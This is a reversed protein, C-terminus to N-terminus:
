FSRWRQRGTAMFDARPKRKGSGSSDALEKGAEEKEGQRTHALWIDLRPYDQDFESLECFRRFDALAEKWQGHMYEFQGRSEYGWAFQPNIQIAREIDARGGEEDGSVKKVWSRTAYAFEDPKLKMAEDVDKMAGERDGLTVKIQSRACYAFALKPYLAISRDFDALAGPLDREVGRARGRDLYPRHDKPDLAIAQDFDAIAEVTHGVALKLLGRNVYARSFKPDLAIARDYDTTAADLNGARQERLGQTFYYSALSRSIPRLAVRTGWAFLALVVVAGVVLGSRALLKKM